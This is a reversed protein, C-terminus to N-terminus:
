QIICDKPNIDKYLEKYRYIRHKLSSFTCYKKRIPDYCSQANQEKIKEKNEERWRKHYEALKEKNKENYIKNTKM